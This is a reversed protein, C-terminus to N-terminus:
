QYNESFGCKTYFLGEDHTSGSICPLDRFRGKAYLNAPDDTLFAGVANSEDTPMWIVDPFVDWEVFLPITDVIYSANFGRLCEILVNSANLPCGLFEGLKLTHKAIVSRPSYGRPSLASGSYKM